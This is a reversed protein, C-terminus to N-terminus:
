ARDETLEIFIDELSMATVSTVRVEHFEPLAERLVEPAKDPACKLTARLRGDELEARLCARHARLKEYAARPLNDGAEIRCINEKLEDLPAHLILEGKHLIAIHDAVRDLDSMIHSSFLVTAGSDVLLRIVVDLFSRRVAPDLGGGPEDLVLLRPKHCVACLLGVQRKQGKSLQGMKRKPDLGFQGLLDSAMKADWTPYVGACLDILDRVRVTAPWDENESLYGLQLKVEEQSTWPDLGFVSVSGASPHLLPPIMRLMTTKGAGNRGVLACATGEPVRLTLGVLARVKGYYRTVNEYEVANVM